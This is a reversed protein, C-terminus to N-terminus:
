GSSYGSSVGHVLFDAEDDIALGGGDVGVGRHGQEVREVRLETEVIGLEAAALRLAAGTGHVEVARRHAGAHHRDARGRALVHGRKGAEARRLLRVRQLGGRRDQLVIGLGGVGLDALGHGADLTAASRVHRDHARDLAGRLRHRGLSITMFGIVRRSKRFAEPESTTLMEIGPATAVASLWPMDEAVTGPPLGGNSGLSSSEHIATRGSPRTVAKKPLISMPWPTSTAIACITASSSSTANSFTSTTIPSVAKVQLWPPAEPLVPVCSPPMASRWAATSARRTRTSM